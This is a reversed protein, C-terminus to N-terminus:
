DRRWQQQLYTATPLDAYLVFRGHAMLSELGVAVFLSYMGSTWKLKRSGRPYYNSLAIHGNGKPWFLSVSGDPCNRYFVAVPIPHDISPSNKVNIGSHRIISKISSLNRINRMTTSKSNFNPFNM